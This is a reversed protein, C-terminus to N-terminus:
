RAGGSSRGPGSLPSSGESRKHLTNSVTRKLFAIELAQQGVLRELEAIRREQSEGDAHGLDALRGQAYQEKWARLTTASLGHRRCLQAQSSVGALLEEVVERKFERSFRRRTGMVLSEGERRTM